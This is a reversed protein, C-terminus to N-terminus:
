ATPATITQEMERRAKMFDAPSNIAEVCILAEGIYSRVVFKGSALSGETESRDAGHSLGLIQLKHTGQDSWFWPIKRYPSQRGMLREAVCKAQDVAAQVSELRLAPGTGNQPVCACDGIASIHEDSTQLMSNTLIGNGVSLGAEAAVEANPVVGTAVLVADAPLIEGTSLAVACAKGRGDSIIRSAFTNLRIDAGAQLHAQLFYDSVQPTVAREMLRSGAELVTVDVGTARFVSAAELGIFGGGIVVIHRCRRARIRMNDADALSRLEMVGDLDTGEVPPKRNRAGLALILHDYEIEEGSSLGVKKGDRDINLLSVGLKVEIRNKAFYDDSRFFLREKKGEKFYAKSLPPRQYPLVAEDGILIIHGTFGSQRLSTAAQFGGQGAGVIVITQEM